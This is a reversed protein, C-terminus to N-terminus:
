LGNKAKPREEGARGDQIRQATGKRQAEYVENSLTERLADLRLGHTRPTMRGQSAMGDWRARAAQRKKVQHPQVTSMHDADLRSGTVLYGAAVARAVLDAGAKTRVIVANTGPDDAEIAPDPAGGPWNDAAAIDAGEGIGDPCIKCRWPVNWSKEDEGWYETYTAAHSQGDTTKFTTPGPCGFGRYRFSEIEPKQVGHHNEIFAETAKPSAFGGCVPTLFYKILQNVRADRRALARLASIDCPKGVFAFPRGKDLNQHVTQLVATPGYRSGAGALVEAATESVHPQGFTPDNGGAKAHLLFEVDGSDVLFQGLATLVGGTSGEHRVAPDGAWAEVFSEYPGWVLDRSSAQAALDAPLAEVRTGPCTDYIADVTEHSLAGVVLPREFGSDVVQMKVSDPGALSECLGCGICMGEEVIRYLRDEPTPAPTPASPPASKSPNMM